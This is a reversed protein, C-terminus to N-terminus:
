GIRASQGGDVPLLVGTIFRAEDSALFLAAHAVDWATGMGGRLPVQANRQAVLQAKDVGRGQAIGEIAMPTNMLGPLISNARIGFKANGMAIAHTMANLAAKSSKYALLNSACVSAISSVNLIVGGQQRRMVPLAHRCTHLAGKVNVSFIEDWAEDTVHTPGGDGRGIGVNNHLVDIRQWREVCAQMLARCESDQTIDVRQAEATGGESAILACTERASELDRDAVLVRAGERAFLLAAARGNGLGEGPAQGGGVVVAVKDRLRM